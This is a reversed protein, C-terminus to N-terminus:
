DADEIELVTVRSQFGLSMTRRYFSKQVFSKSYDIQQMTAESIELNAKGFEAEVQASDAGSAKKVYDFVAKKLVGGDITKSTEIICVTNKTDLKTLKVKEVADFPQGGLPNPYKLSNTQVFNLKYKFGFSFNYFKIQKLLAIELGQKSSLVQKAAKFQVNMQPNPTSGAILGDVAKNAAAKVDEANVLEVFRGVESLRFVMKTGILNGVIQNEIVPDNEAIKAGTYVWEITYGTESSEVVRFTAAFMSVFNQSKGGAFDNTTVKINVAHTDGKKWRPVVDM